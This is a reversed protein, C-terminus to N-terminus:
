LFIALPLLVWSLHDSVTEGVMLLLTNSSEPLSPNFRMERPTLLLLLFIEFLSDFGLNLANARVVTLLNLHQPLSEIISRHLDILSISHFSHHLFVQLLGKHPTNAREVELGHINKVWIGWIQRLCLHLLVLYIQDLLLHIFLQIAHCLLALRLRTVLLLCRLLRLIQIVLLWTRLLVLFHKLILSHLRWVQYSGHAALHSIRCSLPGIVWIDIDLSQTVPHSCALLVGCRMANCASHVCWLTPKHVCITSKGVTCTGDTRSLLRFHSIISWLNRSLASEHINYRILWLDFWFIVHPLRCWNHSPIECLSFYTLRFHM